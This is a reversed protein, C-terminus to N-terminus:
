KLWYKQMNKNKNNSANTHKTVTEGENQHKWGIERQTCDIMNDTNLTWKSMNEKAVM